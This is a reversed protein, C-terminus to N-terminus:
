SRAERRQREWERYGGGRELVRRASALGFHQDVKDKVLALHTLAESEGLRATIPSFHLHDIVTLGCVAGIYDDFITNLAYWVGKDHLAKKPTGSTTLSILGKGKLLPGTPGSALSRFAFGHNFVREIYGKLIAPPTGFWIPYVLVFVDADGILRRERVVDEAPEVEESRELDSLCPDFKMRYLDRVAVEDGLRAVAEEYAKALAACFSTKAPHALIIAHKM